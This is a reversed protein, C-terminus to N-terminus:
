NRNAKLFNLFVTIENLYSHDNEKKLYIRWKIEDKKGVNFKISYKKFLTEIGKSPPLPIDKQPDFTFSLSNGRQHIEIIGLSRALHKIMALSMLNYVGDPIEGFRDLLEDELEDYDAKSHIYSLKKYLDYKLEENKIYDEAIYSSVDLLISIEPSEEALTKGMRLNVADDLIRCYLDYGITALNGSQAAGLINGAGRIELDRLAIKFGSGFATFDKIAKLRKKSIESLMKPKHTIYAYAQVDSRGVRGRLQYLQSLGMHDGNDVILTNANKIDLGSEIITTTVLVDYQYNLFDMMMDELEQAAMRGHAVGIRAQPVQERIRASVEYIDNIRNHVFYVQGRRKMEREIADRIIIENYEMVYTIVPRRGEPPEDILSMDRVGIMSMHLTRPIPTASLTLVDINGKIQKIKEKHTVGFRQEEDIILLGLDKFSVDASLLRHTGVVCDIEGMTIGTLVKEQENKTRFRSLLGVKIPYNKFRDCMTQFHQQALITTPVLFAVQKGDMVAKFAARLAVETKGYGVDGCLLRDMPQSIEMSNKIEEVAQLQDNTEEHPFAEEFEKQWNSDPGFRYGKLQQRKAYLEILEDAMEEVAKKVRAKSRSWEATGLQNIRPKKEGTGVYISIAEMQDVPCYFKAEKAYEIVILDKITKDIKLQEIGRYIGIGHVDHVVYDGINLQTFSDLKKGKKRRKKRRRSGQMFIDKENLCTLKESTLEFGTPIQGLVFQIGSAMGSTFRHIDAQQLTEKIKTQGAEDQSCIMIKYNESIRDTVYELFRPIQGLFPEVEKAEVSLTKGKKSRSGFSTYKLQRFQKAQKEIKSFNFFQKKQEPFFKGAEILAKLDKNVREVYDTISRKIETPEDWILLPQNFYDILSAKAATLSFLNEKEAAVQELLPQYSLDNQYKKQLYKLTKTKEEQALVMELAPTIVIKKLTEMSLQTVPDFLRISEILDDFFELRYAGEGLPPFIDIIGGRQAFQGKAEAQYNREYGLQMLREILNMPKITQDVGLKIDLQKFDSVPMFRKLLTEVGLVILKAENSVLKKLVKLRQNASERSRVDAFYDHLPELPFYLVQSGLFKEFERSIKAAQGDSSAIYLLQGMKQDILLGTLVSKFGDNMNTLNITESAQSEQLLNSIIETKLLNNYLEKMLVEKQIFVM